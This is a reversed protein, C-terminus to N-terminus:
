SRPRPCTSATAPIQLHEYPDEDSGVYLAVTATWAQGGAFREAATVWAQSQRPVGATTNRDVTLTRM